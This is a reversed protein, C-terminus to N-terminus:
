KFDKFRQIRISEHTVGDEIVKWKDEGPILNLTSGNDWKMLLQSMDDVGTCTGEDGPKLNTYPDDMKILYIRKGKLDEKEQPTLHKM